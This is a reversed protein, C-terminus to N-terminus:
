AENQTARPIRRIARRRRWQRVVLVPEDVTGRHRNLLNCSMELARQLLGAHFNIRRQVIIQQQRSRTNGIAGLTKSVRDNSAAIYGRLSDRWNRYFWFHDSQIEKACGIKRGLNM